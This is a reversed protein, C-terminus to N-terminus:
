VALMLERSRERIEVQREAVRKAGETKEEFVGPFVLLPYGSLWAIAAAENASRSLLTRVAPEWVRSLSEELLRSKLEELRAETERRAVPSPKLEFATEPEFRAPVNWSKVVTKERRMSKRGPRAAKM